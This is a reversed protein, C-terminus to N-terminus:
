AKSAPLNNKVSEIFPQINAWVSRRALFLYLQREETNNLLIKDRWCYWSSLTKYAKAAAIKQSALLLSRNRLLYDVYYLRCKGNPLMEVQYVFRWGTYFRSVVTLSVGILVSGIFTGGVVWSGPFCFFLLLAIVFLLEGLYYTFFAKIRNQWGPQMDMFNVFIM